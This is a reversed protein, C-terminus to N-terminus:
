PAPLILLPVLMERPTLGSHSGRQAYTGGGYDYMYQVGEGALVIVDGVRPALDASVHTGFWGADIAEQSSVALPSGASAAPSIADAELGRLFPVRRAGAPTHPLPLDGFTKGVLIAREPDLNTQGHDAVIVLTCRHRACLAAVKGIMLDIFEMELRSAASPSEPLDPGHSHALTDILPWYLSYFAPRGNNTRLAQELQFPIQSLGSYGAFTAGEVLLNTFPTGEFSSDTIATSPVGAAALRRYVTPVRRLWEEDLPEEVGIPRLTLMNVVSDLEDFWLMHGLVGHQAPTCGTALSNLAATTTSPFISTLQQLGGHAAQSLEALRPVVGADIASTLQAHGLADLVVLVTGGDSRLGDAPLRSAALGLNPAKVGFSELVSAAVNVISGGAYDPLVLGHQQVDIM